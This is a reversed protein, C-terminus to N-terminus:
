SMRLSAAGPTPQPAYEGAGFAISRNSTFARADISSAAKAANGDAHVRVGSFDQGFRPEMFSRTSGDLPRGPSRLVDHVIPPVTESVAAGAASRQLVSPRETAVSAPPHPMRMVQDAVREAEQELPDGPQSIANRRFMQLTATESRGEVALRAEEVESSAREGEAGLRARLLAQTGQNGFRRQLTQAASPQPAVASPAVAVM